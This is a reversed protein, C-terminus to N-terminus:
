DEGKLAESPLEDGRSKQFPRSGALAFRKLESFTKEPPLSEEGDGVRLDEMSLSWRADRTLFLLINARSCFCSYSGAETGTISLGRALGKLPLAYPPDPISPRRDASRPRGNPCWRFSLLVLRGRILGVLGNSLAPAPPDNDGLL